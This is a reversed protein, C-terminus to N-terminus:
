GIGSVGFEVTDAVVFVVGGSGVEISGNKAGSGDALVDLAVLGLRAWMGVFGVGATLESTSAHPLTIGPAVNAPGSLTLLSTACGWAWGSEPGGVLPASKLLSNPCGQVRRDTGNMSLAGGIGCTSVTVFM